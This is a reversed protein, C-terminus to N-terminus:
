CEHFVNLEQNSGYLDGVLGYSLFNILSKYKNPLRFLAFDERLVSGAYGIQKNVAQRCLNILSNASHKNIEEQGSFQM